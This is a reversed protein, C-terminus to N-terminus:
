SMRLKLPLAVSSVCPQSFSSGSKSPDGEGKMNKRSAFRAIKRPDVPRGRVYFVSEKGEGLKRRKQLQIIDRM